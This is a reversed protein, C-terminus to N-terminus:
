RRALRLQQTSTLIIEPVGKYFQVVGDLDVTRGNYRSLRPFQSENNEPIFGFLPGSEAHGDIAVDVGLRHTSKQISAVGEVIVHQGIYDAGRTPMIPEAGACAPWTLISVVAATVFVKM